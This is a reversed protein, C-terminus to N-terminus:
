RATSSCGTATSGGLGQGPWCYGGAAHVFVDRNAQGTGYREALSQYLPKGEIKAVADCVAVDITGMAVSREGHGGPKKGTVMTAWVKHPDINEGEADLLCAPDAELLRPRLRERIQSGQGSRGNSNFGCGVVPHGGRIMNTVLAVLSPTMRSFNIYANSINSRIPRTSERLDVITM